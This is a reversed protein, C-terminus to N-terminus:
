PVITGGEIAEIAEIKPAEPWPFQIIWDARREATQLM